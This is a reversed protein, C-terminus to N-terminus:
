PLLASKRVAAIFKDFSEESLEINDCDEMKILCSLKGGITVKYGHIFYDTNAIWEVTGAPVIRQVIVIM